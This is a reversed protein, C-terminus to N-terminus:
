TQNIAKPLRHKESPFNLLLSDPLLQSSFHFPLSSDLHLIYSLSYSSYQQILIGVRFLICLSDFLVASVRKFDGMGVCFSNVFVGMVAIIM